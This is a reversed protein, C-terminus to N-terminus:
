GNEILVKLRESKPKDFVAQPSGEEVLRGGDLFVVWDSVRRVLGLQHSVNIVAGGRDAFQRILNRVKQIWEPDLASTAEDVLLIKPKLAFVRALIVRQRLGGSLTEVADRARDLLGFTDLAEEAAAKTEAVSLGLVRAVPLAVNGFVDMHHWPEYGQLVAGLTRGLLRGSPAQSSSNAQASESATWTEGNVRIAGREPNEVFAICRLATSKGSGNAGIISVVNGWPVQVGFNFIGKERGYDRTLGSVEVALGSAQPELKPAISNMITPSGDHDTSIAETTMM